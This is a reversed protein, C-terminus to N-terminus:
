KSEKTALGNFIADEISMDVCLEAAMELKAKKITVDTAIAQEYKRVVLSDKLVQETILGIQYWDKLLVDVPIRGKDENGFSGWRIVTMDKLRDVFRSSGAYEEVLFNMAEHGMDDTYSEEFLIKLVENDNGTLNGPNPMNRM